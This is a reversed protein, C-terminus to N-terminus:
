RRYRNRKKANAHHRSPRRESEDVRREKLTTKKRPTERRTQIGNGWHTRISVAYIM